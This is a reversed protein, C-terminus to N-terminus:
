PVWYIQSPRTGGPVFRFVPGEFAFPDSGARTDVDQSVTSALVTAGAATALAQLIADCGHVPACAHFEIRPVFHEPYLASDM